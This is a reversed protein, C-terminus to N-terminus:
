IEDESDTDDDFEHEYNFGIECGHDTDEGSDLLNPREYIFLKNKLEWNEKSLRLRELDQKRILYDRNSIM